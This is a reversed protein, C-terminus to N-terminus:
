DATLKQIDTMDLWRYPCQTCSDIYTTGGDFQVRSMQHRCSPCTLHRSPDGDTAAAAVELELKKSKIDKIKSGLVLYGDHKPCAFYESRNTLPEGCIPCPLNTRRDVGYPTMIQLTQPDLPQELAPRIQRVFEEIDQRMSTSDGPLQMGATQVFYLDNGVIEWSQSTCFDIAFAMAAPHLAKRAEVQHGKDAYLNFHTTFDGELEVIEMVSSRATPVLRDASEQRPIGLLHLSTFYPLEVRFLFAPQGGSRPFVTFSSYYLGGIQGDGLPTLEADESYYSLLVPTQSFRASRHRRRYRALPVSLLGAVIVFYPLLTSLWNVKSNM